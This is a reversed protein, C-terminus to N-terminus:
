KKNNRKKIEKRLDAELEQPHLVTGEFEANPFVVVQLEDEDLGDSWRQQWTKLGIPEGQCEQWEGTAWSQAAECSPWVPVCDEDETNLMVCGQQDTLIWIEQNAVVSEIFYQYRQESDYNELSSPLQSM